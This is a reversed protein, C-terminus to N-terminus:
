PLSLRRSPDFGWAFSRQPPCSFVPRSRALYGEAEARDRLRHLRRTEADYVLLTRRYPYTRTSKADLFTMELALDRPEARLGETAVDASLSPDHYAVRLAGRLDYQDAFVVAPGDEPCVGDLIVMTSGPGPGVAGRVERVLARQRQAASTWFSGLTDVVFVGVAVACGLTSAFVLLRRRAEVQRALLGVWGVLVGAVGLAAAANVRNDIAASRFLISQSTLFIAYGLVFTALGVLALTRWTKRAAFVDGERRGVHVLYGLAILGCGVAVAANVASFRHVVIWWLVYPMALFYTGVNLKVAGSVLYAVHHAYGGGFGVQYANQGHEAVLATKALGVALLGAAFVGVEIRRTHGGFVPERTRAARWLLVVALLFLPYVVEYALLSGAICLLAVGLWLLHQPSRGRVARFGAYVGGLFFASSLNIQFADLWYRNTAYHPLTSYVLPLAVCVLRPLRLERLVLYLLAAVVVLLCANCIHYGLAHTGFLLYLTAFTLAQLPRQGTLPRVAHYLNSLSGDHVASMRGLVSYDDYYFGLRAIYPLTSLGIVAGLFACDVLARKKESM